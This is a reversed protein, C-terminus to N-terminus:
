EMSLLLSNALFIDDLYMHIEILNCILADNWAIKCTVGFKHDMEFSPFISLIRYTDEYASSLLKEPGM